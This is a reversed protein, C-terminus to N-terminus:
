RPTWAFIKLDIKGSDDFMVGEAELLIRQLTDSGSDWHALRLSVRGESNVVRHWPVKKNAPLASLANGVHRAHRPMNLLAAIQGYTAVKGKPITKVLAYVDDHNLKATANKNKSPAAAKEGRLAASDVLKPKTTKM